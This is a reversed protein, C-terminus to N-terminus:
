IDSSLITINERCIYPSIRKIVKVLEVLHDGLNLHCLLSIDHLVSSKSNLLENQLYIAMFLFPMNRLSSGGITSYYVCVFVCVCVYICASLCVCVWVCVCVCAHVYVHV